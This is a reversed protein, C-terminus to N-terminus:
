DISLAVTGVGDPMGRDMKGWWSVTYHTTLTGGPNGVEINKEFGFGFFEGVGPRESYSGASAPGSLATGQLIMISIERYRMQYITTEHGLQPLTLPVGCM